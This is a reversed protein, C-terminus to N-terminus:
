KIIQPFTSKSHDMGKVHVSFGPPPVLNIILVSHVAHKFPVFKGNLFFIIIFIFMLIGSKSFDIKINENDM